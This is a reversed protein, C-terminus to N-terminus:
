AVHGLGELLDGSRNDKAPRRGRAESATSHTTLKLELESVGGGEEIWPKIGDQAILVPQRDHITRVAEGAQRTLVVFAEKADEGDEGIREWIGALWVIGCGAPAIRWVPAERAKGREREFWANAPIVCRRAAYARRFMKREGVTESRAHIIFPRRRQAGWSPRWGWQLRTTGGRRYVLFKQGPTGKEHAVVPVDLELGQHMMTRVLESREITQQIRGCM